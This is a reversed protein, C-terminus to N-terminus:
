TQVVSSGVMRELKDIWGRVDVCVVRRFYMSSLLFVFEFEHLTIAVRVKQQLVQLFEHPSSPITIRVWISAKLLRCSCSM